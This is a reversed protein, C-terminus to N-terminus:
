YRPQLGNFLEPNNLNTTCYIYNHVTELDVAAYNGSHFNFQIRGVLHSLAENASVQEVQINKGKDVLDYYIETAHYPRYQFVSTRFNVGHELAIDKLIKALNYTLSRLLLQPFLFQLLLHFAILQDIRTKISGQGEGNKGLM